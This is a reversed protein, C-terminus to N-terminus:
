ENDYNENIKELIYCSHNRFNKVKSFIGLNESFEWESPLFSTIKSCLLVHSLHKMVDLFRNEDYDKNIKELRYCSPTQFNKEKSSTVFKGKVKLEM